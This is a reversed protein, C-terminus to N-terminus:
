KKISPITDRNGVAAVNKVVGAFLVDNFNYSTATHGNDEMGILFIQEREHYIIAAHKKGDPTEEPNYAYESYYIGQYGSDRVRGVPNSGTGAFWGNAILVFGLSTGKEMKGIYVSDGSELAGRNPRLYSANPFAITVNEKLIELPPGEATTYTYYGLTNSFSATDHIFTLWVDVDESFDLKGVELSEIFDPNNSKEKHYRFVSNNIDKLLADEVTVKVASEPKGFNTYGDNVFWWSSNARKIRGGLVRTPLTGFTYGPSPGRSSYRSSVAKGTDIPIRIEPPLGIYGPKLVLYSFSIPVTVEIELMGQSDTTGYGVSIDAITQTEEPTAHQSAYLAIPIFPFNAGFAHNVRLLETTRYNFGDPIILSGIPKYVIPSDMCGALLAIAISLLLMYPLKLQKQMFVEVSMLQQFVFFLVMYTFSFDGKTRFETLLLLPYLSSDGAPQRQM